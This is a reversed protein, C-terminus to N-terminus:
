AYTCDLVCSATHGAGHLRKGAASTGVEAPLTLASKLVPLKPNAIDYVFLVGPLQPSDVPAPAPATSTRRDLAILLIKRKPSLDVDENQWLPLPVHAAVAPNEPDKVDFVWLGGDSLADGSPGRYGTSRATTQFYYGGSFKGGVGMGTPVNKLLRVNASSTYETIPTPPYAYSAPALLSLVSLAAVLLRRPMRSSEARGASVGAPLIHRMACNM